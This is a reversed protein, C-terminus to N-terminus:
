QQDRSAISGALIATRLTKAAASGIPLDIGKRILEPGNPSMLLNAMRRGAIISAAGYSPHHIALEGTALMTVLSGAAKGPSSRGQMEGLKFLNDLEETKSPGFLIAKTEPGIKNWKNLISAGDSYKGLNSSKSILGEVVTRGISPLETPANESIQKLLNISKDENSTLLNIARVPNQDKGFLRSALKATSYKDKTAQRGLELANVAEQGLGATAENLAGHLQISLTAALGKSKSRLENIGTRAIDNVASLDDIAKNLPVIDPSELIQKLARYGPDAQRQALPISEDIKEVIPRISEKVGSYLTPGAVKRMDITPREVGLMGQNILDRGTPKKVSLRLERENGFIFKGDPGITPHSVSPMSTNFILPDGKGPKLRLENEKIYKTGFDVDRVNDAAIQRLRTYGENAQAKHLDIKKQLSDLLDRGATLKSTGSSPAISQSVRDALDALSKSSEDKAKQVISATFPQQSFIGKLRQLTPNGSAVATDIPVGNSRGYNVASVEEPTLSVKPKIGKGVQSLLGSLLGAGGANIATETPTAGQAQSVAATSAAEMGGQGLARLLRPYKSAATAAELAKAGKGILGSPLFFEGFQEAGKGIKGAMSDPATMNRQLIPNDLFSKGGAMRNVLDAVHAGSSIVGSGIGAVLETAGRIPWSSKIKDMASPESPSAIPNGNEDLYTTAKKTTIPNGNNDLYIVTSGM